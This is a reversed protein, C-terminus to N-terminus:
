YNQQNHWKIFKVCADYVAEIKSPRVIDSIIEKRNGYFIIDCGFSSIKVCAFTYKSWQSRRTKEIKEVVEMLWNWDSHYKSYKAINEVVKEKSEETTYFFPADSWSYFKEFHVIKKNLGMFEAIIANQNIIKTEM